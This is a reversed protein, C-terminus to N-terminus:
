NHRHVGSLWVIFAVGMLAGGAILNLILDGGQTWFIGGAVIILGYAATALAIIVNTPLPEGDTRKQPPSKDPSTASAQTVSQREVPRKWPARLELQHLYPGYSKFFIVGSFVFGALLLLARQFYGVYLYSLGVVMLAVSAAGLLSLVLGIIILSFGNGSDANTKLSTKLSM